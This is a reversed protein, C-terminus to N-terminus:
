SRYHGVQLMGVWFVERLAQMMWLVSILVSTLIATARLVYSVSAYKTMRRLATNRLCCTNLLLLIHAYPSSM